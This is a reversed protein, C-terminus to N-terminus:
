IFVIKTIVQADVHENLRQLLRQRGLFLEHRLVSSTLRVYLVGGKIFIQETYREVAPGVVVPWAQVLRFENYPTEIGADRMFQRIVDGLKEERQRKM